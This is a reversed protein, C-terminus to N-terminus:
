KLVFAEGKSPAILIMVDHIGSLVALEIGNVALNLINESLVNFSSGFQNVM